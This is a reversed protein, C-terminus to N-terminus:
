LLGLSQTEIGTSNSITVGQMKTSLQCKCVNSVSFITYDIIHSPDQFYKFNSVNCKKFVTDKM